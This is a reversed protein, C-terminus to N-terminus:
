GGFYNTFLNMSWAKGEFKFEQVSDKVPSDHVIGINEVARELENRFPVDLVSFDVERNWIGIDCSESM